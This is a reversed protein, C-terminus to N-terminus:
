LFFFPFYLSIHKVPFYCLFLFYFYKFVMSLFLPWLLFISNCVSLRRQIAELEIEKSILCVCVRLLHSLNFGDGKKQEAEALKIQLHFTKHPADKLKPPM